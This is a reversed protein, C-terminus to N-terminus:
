AVGLCVLHFKSSATFAATATITVTTATTVISYAVRDTDNQANCVPATTWTSAFTVACSTAAGGTGVTVLMASDNGAVSPSTGCAGMTPTTGGRARFKPASVDTATYISRPRTAGSAGIDLANDTVSVFNGATSVDWRATSNTMFRIISAGSAQIQVSRGAGTGANEAGIVLTNASWGFTAREYNSGDTYTNYVRFAQANTSNRQGIIAAADRHLIADPSGASAGMAFSNTTSFFGSDIRVREGGAISIGIANAGVSWIGTNSSAAFRIGPAGVAGNPATVVGTFVPSAIPAYTSAASAATLYDAAAEVAMTGLGLNTRAIAADALGSLNGSKALYNTATETAMTGLGAIMQAWTLKFNASSRAIVFEDANQPSTGTTLESIKSDAAIAPAAALLLVLLCRKLM